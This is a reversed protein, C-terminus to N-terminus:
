RRGAGHLAAQFGADAVRAAHLREQLAAADALPSTGVEAPLRKLEAALDLTLEELRALMELSTIHAVNAPQAARWLAFSAPTMGGAAYLLASVIEAVQGPTLEALLAERDPGFLLRAQAQLREVYEAYTERHDKAPDLRLVERASDISVPPFSVTRGDGLDFRLTLGRPAPTPANPM